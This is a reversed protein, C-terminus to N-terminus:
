PNAGALTPMEWTFAPDTLPAYLTHPPRLTRRASRTLAKGSNVELWLAPEGPDAAALASRLDFPKVLSDAVRRLLDDGATYARAHVASYFPIGTSNIRIHRMARCLDEAETELSPHHCRFPLPLRISRIGSDAACQELCDLERSDPSTIIVENGHNVCAIAAGGEGAQDILRETQEPSAFVLTMGGPYHLMSRAARIASRAGDEISCVGSAALASIEGFSVGLIRDPPLGISKLAQHIAIQSGFLALQQAGPALDALVTEDPPDPALLASGLSPIGYEAGVPDISAFVETVAKKIAPLEHLARLLPGTAFDGQGPFVHVVHRHNM